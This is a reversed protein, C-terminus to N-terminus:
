CASQKPFVSEVQDKLSANQASANFVAFMVLTATRIMRLLM